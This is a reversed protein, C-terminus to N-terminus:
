PDLPLDVGTASKVAAALKAATPFRAIQLIWCAVFFPVAAPRPFGQAVVLVGFIAVSEPLSLSLILPQQYAVIAKTEAVAPDDFAKLPPAAERFTVEAAPNPREVILPSLQAALAKKLMQPPLIIAAMAMVLAVGAVAPLMVPPAPQPPQKLVFVTAVLVFTSVFLGAWLVQATRIRKEM